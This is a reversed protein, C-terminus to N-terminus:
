EEPKANPDVKLVDWARANPRAITFSVLNKRFCAALASRMARAIALCAEAIEPGGSVSGSLGDIAKGFALADAGNLANGANVAIGDHAKTGADPPATGFQV